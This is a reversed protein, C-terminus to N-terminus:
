EEETAGGLLAGVDEALMTEFSSLDELYCLLAHKTKSGMKKTDRLYGPTDLKTIEVTVRNFTESVEIYWRKNVRKLCFLM